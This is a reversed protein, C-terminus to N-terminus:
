RGFEMGAYQDTALQGVADDAAPPPAAEDNWREGNL